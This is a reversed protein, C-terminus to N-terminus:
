RFRAALDSSTLPLGPELAALVKPILDLKLNQNTKSGARALQKRCSDDCAESDAVKSRDVKSETKYYSYM